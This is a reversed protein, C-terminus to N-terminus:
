AKEKGSSEMLIQSFIPCQYQISEQCREAVDALGPREIENLLVALHCLPLGMVNAYCHCFDPAPDFDQNQIAYAGAKDMPDGSAVYATVEKDTYERMRVDSSVIRSQIENRSIDYIALGSYVTHAKGRLDTLMQVAQTHDAPKGLIRDGDVVITDAAIVVWDGGASPNIFERVARAKEKSVRLVFNEPLEDGVRLEEIDPTIVMFGDILNRLLSKRRPSKSALIYETMPKQFTVDKDKGNDCIRDCLKNM